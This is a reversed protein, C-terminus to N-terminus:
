QMAEIRQMVTHRIRQAREIICVLIEIIDPDCSLVSANRCLGVVDLSMAIIDEYHESARRPRAAYLTSM